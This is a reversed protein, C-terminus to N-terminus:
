IREKIASIMAGHIHIPQYLQVFWQLQCRAPKTNKTHIIPCAVGVDHEKQRSALASGTIQNNSVSAASSGTRALWTRQGHVVLFPWSLLRGVESVNGACNHLPAVIGSAECHFCLRALLARPPYSIAALRHFAVRRRDFTRHTSVILTSCNLGPPM